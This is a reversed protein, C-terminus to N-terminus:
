PPTRSLEGPPLSPAIQLGPFMVVFRDFALYERIVEGKMGRTLKATLTSKTSTLTRDPGTYYVTEGVVYPAVHGAEGVRAASGPDSAPPPSVPQQVRQPEASGPADDPENGHFTVSLLYSEANSVFITNVQHYTAYCLAPWDITVFFTRKKYWEKTHTKGRSLSIANPGTTQFPPPSQVLVFGKEGIQNGNQVANDPHDIAAKIQLHDGSRKTQVALSAKEQDAPVTFDLAKLKQLVNNKNNEKRANMPQHARTTDGNEEYKLWTQKM